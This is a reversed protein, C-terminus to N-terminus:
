RACRACPQLEGAPHPLRSRRRRYTPTQAPSHDQPAAERRRADARPRRSGAAPDPVPRWAGRQATGHFPWFARAGASRRAPMCHLTCGPRLVPSDPVAPAPISRILAKRAKAHVSRRHIPRALDFLGKCHVAPARGGHTGRASAPRQGRACGRTGVPRRGARAGRQAKPRGGARGAWAGARRGRDPAQWVSGVPRGGPRGALRGAVGWAAANLARPVWLAWGAAAAGM